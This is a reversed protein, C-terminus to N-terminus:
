EGSEEHGKLVRNEARLIAVEAKLDNNEDRMKELQLDKEDTKALAERWRQIISDHFERRVRRERVDGALRNKAALTLIGLMLGSVVKILEPAIGEFGM